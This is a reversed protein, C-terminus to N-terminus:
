GCSPEGDRDLIHALALADIIIASAVILGLIVVVETSAGVLLVYAPALVLRLLMAAMTGGLLGHIGGQRLLHPLPATMLIIACGGLAARMVTTLEVGCALALVAGLIAPIVAVLFCARLDRLDCTM